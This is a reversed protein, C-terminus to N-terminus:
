VEMICRDKACLFALFILWTKTTRFEENEHTTTDWLVHCSRQFYRNEHTTTLALSMPSEASFLLAIKMRPPSGQSM